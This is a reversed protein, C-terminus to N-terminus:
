KKQAELAKKIDKRLPGATDDLAKKGMAGVAMAAFLKRASKGTARISSIGKKGMTIKMGAGKITIKNVMSM